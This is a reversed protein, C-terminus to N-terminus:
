SQYVTNRSENIKLKKVERKVEEKMWQNDLLINNLKWMNTSTEDKRKKNIETKMANHGSFITPIIETMKFKSFSTKCGAIHDIRSFTRHVSSCFTYEAATPHFATYLDIQDLAQNLQLTERNIKRGRLDPVLCPHESDGSKSLITSSTGAPATLCPMRM